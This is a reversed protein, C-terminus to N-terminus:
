PDNKWYEPGSGANKEEDQEVFEDEGEWDYQKEPLPADRIRLMFAMFIGSVAGFFHSEFSVGQRQPFIGWIMGGYLFFVIMSLVISLRDRRLVGIVFVFFMMGYALGSAGIHYNSRAFIWVGIGSLLYIAPLALMSARPYGYLMATGLVFLPATNALLHLWSGHILPAFLIGRLGSIERPLVGYRALGLHFVADAVGVWWLLGIFVLVIYASKRLDREVNM